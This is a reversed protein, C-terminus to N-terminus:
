LAVRRGGRKSGGARYDALRRLLGRRELRAIVDSVKARTTIGTADCIADYSPAQGESEITDTVFALVQVARYGLPRGEIPFAMDLACAVDYRSLQRNPNRKTPQAM